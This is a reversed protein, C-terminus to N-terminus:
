EKSNDNLFQLVGKFTGRAEPLSFKFQYEHWLGRNEFFRSIVNVGMSRLSSALEKGQHVFPDIDGVTIFTSPYNPTIYKITSLEDIREYREFDKFGTLAEMYTQLGPFNTKRLSEMDYLGCFLVVGKLASNNISPKINMKEALEKNSILAALQSVIQAGASDGGIFINDIDGNFKEANDLVYKLAENCQTIQSPYKYKPALAYDINFVVYGKNAVTMMYNKVTEKSNAIYGGGHVWMIVPMKKNISKPYYIDLKNNNLISSNYTIDSKVKLNRSIESFNKPKPFVGLQFVEKYVKSALNVTALKEVVAASLNIAGVYLKNLIM